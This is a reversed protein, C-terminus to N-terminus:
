ENILRIPTGGIQATWTTRERPNAKTPDFEYLISWWCDNAVSCTYSEPIDIRIDIWQNNYKKPDIETTASALGQWEATVVDCVGAAPVVTSVYTVGDTEYVDITCNLGAGDGVIRLTATWYPDYGPNGANAINAPTSSVDGADFLRIVVSRGAYYEEVKALKFTPTSGAVTMDMSMASLGFVAPEEPGSTAASFGFGNFGTSNDVYVSAVYIGATASPDACVLDSGDGANFTGSCLLDGNDTFDNPTEDPEYIEWVTTFGSSAGRDRVSGPSHHGPDDITITLNSGADAVLVEIGYYYAPDRFHPNDPTGGAGPCSTGQSTGCVTSFPDGNAKLAFEGNVSLWLDNIGSGFAPEDSGLKLPPLQEAVASRTLTQTQWGFVRGFFTRVNTSVTVRVQNARDPDSFEEPTVTANVGDVMENAAAIAIATTYADTDEWLLHGPRPMHVVAALASAEAAEQVQSGNWYFWGLDVAFAAVGMVVTLMAAAIVLVAGREEETEGDPAPEVFLRRIM